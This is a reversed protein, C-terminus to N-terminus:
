HLACLEAPQMGLFALDQTLFTVTAALFLAFIGSVFLGIALLSLLPRGDGILIALLGPEAQPRLLESAPQPTMRM